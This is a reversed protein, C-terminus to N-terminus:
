SYISSYPITQMATRTIKNTQAAIPYSLICQKLEHPCKEGPSELVKSSPIYRRKEFTKSSLIDGLHGEFIEGSIQFSILLM